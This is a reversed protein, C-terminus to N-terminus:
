WGNRPLLWRMCSSGMYSLHALVSMDNNLSGESVNNHHFHLRTHSHAQLLALFLNLVECQTNLMAHDRRVLDPQYACPPSTDSIMHHM